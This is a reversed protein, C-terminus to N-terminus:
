SQRKRRFHTGLLWLGEFLDIITLRKGYSQTKVRKKESRAAEVHVLAHKCLTERMHEFFQSRIIPRSDLWM